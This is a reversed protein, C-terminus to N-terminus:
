RMKRKLYIRTPYYPDCTLKNNEVIPIFELKKFLNMAATNRKDTRLIVESIEQQKCLQIYEELLKTGIKHERNNRTVAIEDLYNANADVKNELFILKNKPFLYGWIFGQIQEELEAILIISKQQKQAFRIDEKIDKNSWYETVKLINNCSKCYKDINEKLGYNTGCSVCKLYENWPEEAFASKYLSM